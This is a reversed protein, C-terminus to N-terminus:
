NGRVLTAIAWLLTGNIMMAIPAQVYIPADPVNFVLAGFLLQVVAWVKQIVDVLVDLVGGPADGFDDQDESLDSTGDPMVNNPDIVMYVAVYIALVCILPIPNLAM